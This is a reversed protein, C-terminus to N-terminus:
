AAIEVIARVRRRVPKNQATWSTKRSPMAVPARRVSKYQTAVSAGTRVQDVSATAFLAYAIVSAITVAAVLVSALPVFVGASLFGPIVVGAITGLMM